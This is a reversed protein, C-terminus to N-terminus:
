TPSKDLKIDASSFFDLKGNDQLIGLRGSKDLGAVSGSIKIDRHIFSVLREQLIDWKAWSKMFEDFSLNDFTDLRQVLRQILHIIIQERSIVSEQMAELLSVVAQDIEKNINDPMSINLGIGIVFKQSQNTTEILIGGMKKQQWFIDNPWKVGHGSLGVDSLVDAIAIGTVLSLLSRHKLNDNFCWCLSFYINGTNPSLWSNGRKGRGASQTDSICIDGCHGNELLWNNTSDITKFYSINGILQRNESKCAERIKQINLPKNTSPM